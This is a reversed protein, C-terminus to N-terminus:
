GKRNRRRQSHIFDRVVFGTVANVLAAARPIPDGNVDVGSYFSAVVLPLGDIAALQTFFTANVALNLSTKRASEIAGDGEM